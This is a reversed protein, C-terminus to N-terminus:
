RHFIECLNNLFHTTLFHHLHHAPQANATLTLADDPGNWMVDTLAEGLADDVESFVAAAEPFADALDKGMGVAQSGQGPFTFAITMEYEKKM